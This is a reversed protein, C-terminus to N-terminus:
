RETGPTTTSRVLLGTILALAAGLVAVGLLAIRWADTLHAALRGADPTAGINGAVVRGALDASELRGAVLTILVGGFLALIAANAAGRVTNLMGAAMGARETNVQNVAQADTVGMALGVGMGVTLLPGALAPVDIGPTLVSLWANGGALVLLAVTILATPTVGRNVLVAAVPPVFMMPVTPLLMILGTQGATFGAPAQLYTPLFALVGGYGFATLSTALLWGMFRRHRLLTLDLVPNAARRQVPVFATLAALGLLGAGLVVPDTWGRAPGQSIALLVGTLATVLTVAGLWDIRPRVGARSEPLLLSGAALLLGVVAFCGFSLRWGVTTVIWGSVSPGLALGLAATAGVAAFVRIRAPGTFGAALIGGSAALICAAGAGTLVRAGLLVGVGPALAAVLSGATYALTGIRYVRRRGVGDALSGAVPMLASATLFYGTVVWQTAASGANVEASIRPIAVSAGSMSMPLALFGALIVPLSGRSTPVSPAACATPSSM